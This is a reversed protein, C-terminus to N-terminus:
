REPARWRESATRVAATVDPPMSAGRVVGVAATRELRLWRVPGRGTLVWWAFCAAVIPFVFVALGMGALALGDAKQEASWRPSRLVWRMAERWVLRGVTVATYRRLILGTDAGM